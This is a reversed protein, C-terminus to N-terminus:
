FGAALSYIIFGSAMLILSHKLGLKISDESFKGILLGAFFGQILILGSFITQFNLASTATETALDSNMLGSVGGSLGTFVTGSIESLQPMLNVQLVIMIGIFIFFVFYGQIMQSFTNAKREEKIKKIQLVSSTVAELVDQINGGAQEAEIVIAMSRRILPNETDNAFNKLSDRLPIGWGIQRSLKRVYPSLAGYDAESIQSISKPIPIGSKVTDALARVFELFKEELEKHRRAEALTDLWLPLVAIILAIAILPKFWRSKIALLFIIDLVIILIAIGFVIYHKAELKM